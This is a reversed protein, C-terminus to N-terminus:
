KITEFKFNLTIEKKICKHNKSIKLLQENTYKRLEDIENLISVNINEYQRYMIDTCCRVFISLINYFDNNKSIRRDRKEISKTFEEKTIKNTMFSIRDLLNDDYDNRYYRIDVRNIHIISTCIYILEDMKNESVKSKKLKHMFENIFYRDIERGCLVQAPDSIDTKMKKMYEYYHPNHINTEIRLTIWDFATGCGGYAPTCYMQRCGDIKYIKYACVPCNKSEKKLAAISKVTDINCTHQSNKEYGKIEHCEKCVWCECLGCKLSSSLFGKCDNSPCARIFEVKEVNKDNKLNYLESNLMCLEERLSKIRKLIKDTQIKKKIIIQTQPFLSMEKEFLIKKNFEKLETNLIKSTFNKNLFSIDWMVKCNMCHAKQNQNLIYTKTCEVCCEFECYCEILKRNSKNFPEICVSCKKIDYGM